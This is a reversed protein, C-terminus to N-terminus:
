AVSTTTYTMAFNPHVLAATLASSSSSSTALDGKSSSSCVDDLNSLSLTWMNTNQVNSSHEYITKTDNAAAITATTTTAAAAAAAAATSLIASPRTGMKMNTVMIDGFRKMKALLRAYKKKNYTFWLDVSQLGLTTDMQKSHTKVSREIELMKEKRTKRDNAEQDQLQMSERLFLLHSKIQDMQKDLLMRRQSSLEELKNMCEKKRAQLSSELENFVAEITELQESMDSQGRMQIKEMEVQQMKEMWHGYQKSLSEM